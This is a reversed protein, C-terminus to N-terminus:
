KRKKGKTPRHKGKKGTDKLLKYEISDVLALYSAEIINASAGVTTWVDTHDASEITVRVHARTSASADVIVVKYDVLRLETLEPHHPILAKRLAKDLADVPGEIGEAATHMLTEGVKIRITAESNRSGDERTESIVRFGLLEFFPKYLGLTRRILLDFSADASEFVYGEMEMQKVLALVKNMGQPYKSFDIKSRAVINSRGSLESILVRRENGVSTPTIHEYTKKSRAIASVHIGGKHAFASRGVFPQRDLLPVNAEEYVYRSLETLHKLNKKGICTHKMKLELNPIVSTLDCNGCREGIGNITGQVHTAGAEVAAIA